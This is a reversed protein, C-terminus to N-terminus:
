NGFQSSAYCLNVLDFYFSSTCVLLFLYTEYYVVLMLKVRGFFLSTYFNSSTSLKRQFQPAHLFVVTLPFFFFYVSLLSFVTMFNHSTSLIIDLPLMHFLPVSVPM